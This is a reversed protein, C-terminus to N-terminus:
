MMPKWESWDAIERMKTLMNKKTLLATPRWSLGSGDGNWRQLDYFQKGEPTRLSGVAIVGSGDPLAYTFGQNLLKKVGYETCRLWEWQQHVNSVIYGIGEVLRDDGRGNVLIRDEIGPTIAIIADPFSETLLGEVMDTFAAKSAEIDYMKMEDSSTSGFLGDVSFRVEIDDM